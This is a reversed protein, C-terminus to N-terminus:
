FSASGSNWLIGCATPTPDAIGCQSGLKVRTPFSSFFKSRNVAIKTKGIKMFASSTM